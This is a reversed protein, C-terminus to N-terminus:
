YTEYMLDEFTSNPNQLGSKKCLNAAYTHCNDTYQKFYPHQITWVLLDTTTMQVDNTSQILHPARRQSLRGPGFWKGRSRIAQEKSKFRSVAVGDRWKEFVYVWGPTEVLVYPHIIPFVARPKITEEYLAVGVVPEEKYRISHFDVGWVGSGFIEEEDLEEDEDQGPREHSLELLKRKVVEGDPALDEGFQISENRACFKQAPQYRQNFIILVVGAGLLELM